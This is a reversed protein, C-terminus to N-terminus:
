WGQMKLEVVLPCSQSEKPDFFISNFYVFIFEFFVKVPSRLVLKNISRVIKIGKSCPRGVLIITDVIRSEVLFVTTPFAKNRTIIHKHFIINAGIMRSKTPLKDVIIKTIPIYM